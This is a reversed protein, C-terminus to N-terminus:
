RKFKMKFAPFQLALTGDTGCSYSAAGVLGYVDEIELERDDTNAGPLSLVGAFPKGAVTLDYTVTGSLSKLAFTMTTATRAYTGSATAKVRASGSVAGWQTTGSLTAGQDATLTWTSDAKVTATVGAGQLQVSVKGAATTVLGSLTASSVQWTGTPCAAAGGGGIPLLVIGCASLLMSSLLVGVSILRRTMSM